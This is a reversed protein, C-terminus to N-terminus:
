RDDHSNSAQVILESEDRIRSYNHSIDRSNAEQSDQRKKANWSSVGQVGRVAYLIIAIYNLVMQSPNHNKKYSPTQVINLYM